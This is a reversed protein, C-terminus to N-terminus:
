QVTTGQYYHTLIQVYNWGENSAYGLAGIQSLGVGHGFGNTTISFNTGDFNIATIKCSRLKTGGIISERLTRGRVNQGGIPITNIFGGDTYTAGNLDFWTSPDGSVYIGASALAGALTDASIICNAYSDDYASAVGVLYPINNGWVYSAAQTGGGSSAHYSANIVSGNYYILQNVVIRVLETTKPHPTTYSMTPYTGDAKQHYKMYTHCAVAQAKYAEYCDARPATNVGVIERQVAGAIKDVLWEDVDGTSPPPVVPESLQTNDSSPESSPASSPASTPM